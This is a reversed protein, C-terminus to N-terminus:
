GRFRVHHGEDTRAPDRRGKGRGRRRDSQDLANQWSIIESEYWIKRNPSIFVGRPFKGARELRWLTSRGIPILQLIQKETLM